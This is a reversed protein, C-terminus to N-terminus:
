VWLLWTSGLIPLMGLVIAVIRGRTSSSPPTGQAIRRAADSERELLVGEMGLVGLMAILAGLGCLAAVAFAGPAPVGLWLLAGALAVAAITCQVGLRRVPADMNDAAWQTVTVLNRVKLWTVVGLLMMFGLVALLPAVDIPMVPM